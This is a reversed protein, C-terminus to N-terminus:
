YCRYIEFSEGANYKNIKKSVYDANGELDYISQINITSGKILKESNNIIQEIYWETKEPIYFLIHMHPSQTTTLEVIGIALFNNKCYNSRM